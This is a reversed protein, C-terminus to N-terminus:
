QPMGKAEKRKFLLVSRPKDVKAVLDFQSEIRSIISRKKESPLNMDFFETNFLHLDLYIVKIRRNDLLNLIGEGTRDYQTFIYNRDAFYGLQPVNTLVPDGKKTNKKIWVSAYEIPIKQRTEVSVPRFWTGQIGILLALYGVLFYNFIKLHFYPMFIWIVLGVLFISCIFLFHQYDVLHSYDTKHVAQLVISIIIALALCIIMLHRSLKESIVQSSLLILPPVLPLFYRGTLSKTSIFSFFVLVTIIWVMLLIFSDKKLTMTRLGLCVSIIFVFILPFGIQNFLIKWYDLIPATNRYEMPDFHTIQHIRASVVSIIEGGGWTCYLFWPVMVFLAGIFFGLAMKWANDWEIAKDVFYRKVFFLGMPILVLTAQYKTLTAFAFVVGLALWRVLIKGDVKEYFLYFLFFFLTFMTMLPVDIKTLMANHLIFSDSIAWFVALLGGWLNSLKKGFLFFLVILPLFWTLMHFLRISVFDLSFLSEWLSLDFLGFHPHGLFFEGKEGVPEIPYGIEHINRAVSLYIGEDYELPYNVHQRYTIIISWVILFFIGVFFLNTGKLIHKM